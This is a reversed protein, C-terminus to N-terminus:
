WGQLHEGVLGLQPVLESLHVMIKKVRWATFSISEIENDTNILVEWQSRSQDTGFIGTNVFQEVTGALLMRDSNMFCLSWAELLLMMIIKEGM